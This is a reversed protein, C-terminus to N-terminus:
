RNVEPRGSPAFLAYELYLDAIAVAHVLTLIDGLRPSTTLEVM